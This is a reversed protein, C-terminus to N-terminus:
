LVTFTSAVGLGGIVVVEVVVIKALRGDSMM